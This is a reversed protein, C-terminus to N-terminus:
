FDLSDNDKEWDLIGSGDVSNAFGKEVPASYLELSPAQYATGSLILDRKM